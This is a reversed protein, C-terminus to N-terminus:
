VVLPFYIFLYNLLFDIPHIIIKLEFHESLCIVCYFVQISKDM